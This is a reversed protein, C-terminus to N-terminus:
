DFQCGHHGGDRVGHVKMKALQTGIPGNTFIAIDKQKMNIKSDQLDFGCLYAPFVVKLCAGM